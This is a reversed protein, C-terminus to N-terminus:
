RQLLDALAFLAALTALMGIGALAEMLLERRACARCERPADVLRYNQRCDHLM